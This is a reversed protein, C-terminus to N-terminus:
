DVGVARAFLDELSTQSRVFHRVQVGTEGAARFLDLIEREAPMYVKIIKDETEEVRCGLRELCDKFAEEDGKIKLEFLRFHIEKLASIRGQAALRGRNLIVVESCVSEIDSLIHSSIL